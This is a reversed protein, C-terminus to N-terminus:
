DPADEAAMEALAERVAQMDAEVEARCTPCLRSQRVVAFVDKSQHIAQAADWPEDSDM